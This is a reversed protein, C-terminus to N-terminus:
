AIALDGSSILGRWYRCPVFLFPSFSMFILNAITPTPFQALENM